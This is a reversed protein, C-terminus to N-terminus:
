ICVGLPNNGHYASSSGDAGQQPMIPEKSPLSGNLEGIASLLM